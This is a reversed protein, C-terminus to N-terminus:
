FDVQLTVRTANASDGDNNAHEFNMSAGGGLSKGLGLSWPKHSDEIDRWQFVYDIGSDGLGGAIGFFTTKEEGWTQRQDNIFSEWDVKGVGVYARLDSVSVEAVILNQTEKYNLVINVNGAANYKNGSDINAFAVKGIDGVNVSLGFEVKEFDYRADDVQSEEDPNDDSNTADIQLAMLDNSFAYSIAYGHRYSTQSDGYHYSNDTIAGVANYSASWIRGVTLSGFGGSLGVYSLRGGPQGADEISINQEFQYVAALGEGAETSGQIGWYSEGDKVAVNGDLSEVGARLSGYWSAQAFVAQPVCLTGALALTALLKRM